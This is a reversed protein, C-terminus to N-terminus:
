GARSCSPSTGGDDIGLLSEAVYEGFRKGSGCLQQLM